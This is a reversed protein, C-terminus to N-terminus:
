AGVDRWDLGGNQQALTIWDPSCNLTQSFLQSVLDPHNNKDSLHAAILHKLRSVDLQRLLDASQCNSLHGLLGGVRQKLAPPYIGEALMTKDHNAELILADLGTYSEIIHPTIHGTDTLVGLRHTGSSIIFQCPERADHPVAVPTIEMDGLVFATHVNIANASELRGGHATGASTFVPLSFRRALRAVGSIHDAHEHTVLIATLDDGDLGLRQLRRRTEKTSFGCDILIRTTGCEVLTANGRSGSGLMAFRM